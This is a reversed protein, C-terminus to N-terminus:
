FNRNFKDILTDFVSNHDKIEINEINLIGTNTTISYYILKEKTTITKEKMKNFDGLNSFYINKGIIKKNNITYETINKPEKTKIISEVISGDILEDGIEINKIKKKNKKKLYVNTNPNFSTNFKENLEEVNDIGFMNKIQMMETIDLDDWDCFKTDNIIIEKKSTILCYYYDPKIDTIKSDKSDKVKIYGNKKCYFYHNGSVLVNNLNYLPENPKIKMISHVINKNKLKEGIAIDSMKKVSNETEVLTEGHFCTAKGSVIAAFVSVIILPTAIGLYTLAWGIYSPIAFM